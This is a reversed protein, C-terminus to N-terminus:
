LANVLHRGYRRLDVEPQQNPWAQYKPLGSSDAYWIEVM